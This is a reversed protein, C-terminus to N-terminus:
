GIAAGGGDVGGDLGVGKGSGEGEGIGVLVWDGEFEGGGRDGRELVGRGLVVLEGGGDEVALEGRKIFGDEGDVGAVGDVGCGDVGAAYVFVADAAGGSAVGFGAGEVDLSGHGAVGEDDM